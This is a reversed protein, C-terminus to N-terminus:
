TQGELIWNIWIIQNCADASFSSMSVDVEEVGRVAGVVRVSLYRSMVEDAVLESSASQRLSSWTRVQYIMLTDCAWLMCQRLNMMRNLVLGGSCQVNLCSFRIVCIITSGVKRSACTCPIQVQQLADWWCNGAYPRRRRRENSLNKRYMMMDCLCQFVPLHMHM